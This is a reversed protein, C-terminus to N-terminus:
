RYSSQHMQNSGKFHATIAKGSEDVGEFDFTYVSGNKVVTLSGTPITIRGEYSFEDWSDTNDMFACSGLDNIENTSSETTNFVGAPISTTNAALWLEMKLGSGTGTLSEMWTSYNVTSPALFIDFEVCGVWMDQIITISKDIAYYNGNYHVYYEPITNDSNPDETSEKGCGGVLAVLVIM